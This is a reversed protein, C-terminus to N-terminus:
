LTGMFWEFVPPINEIIRYKIDKHLVVIFIEEFQMVWQYYQDEKIEKMNNKDEIDIHFILYDAMDINELDWSYEIEDRIVSIFEELSPELSIWGNLWTEEDKYLVFFNATVESLENNKMIKEFDPM